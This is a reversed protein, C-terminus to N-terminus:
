FLIRWYNSIIMIILLAPLMNAIPINKIGCIRFGTALMIMGGCASFDAVLPPTTFPLLIRGCVYLSLLIIFQPIVTLSVIYGMSAAFIAATFFDLFAKSILVTSDHTIGENMAGFIGTGSASFLVLVSIFNQLFAANDLKVPNKRSSKNQLAANLFLACKEIRNEIKFLEGLATGILLALIVPPLMSVKSIMVIGMGMSIIGFTLPLMLRLREPIKNGLFAGAIAGTLTALTDILPGTFM